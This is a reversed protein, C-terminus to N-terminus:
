NFTGNYTKKFYYTFHLIDVNKLDKIAIKYSITVTTQNLQNEELKEIKYYANWYNM